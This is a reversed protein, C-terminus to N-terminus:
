GHSYDDKKEIWNMILEPGADFRQDAILKKMEAVQTNHNAM